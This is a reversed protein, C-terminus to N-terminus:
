PICAMTKRCAIIVIVGTNVIIDKSASLANVAYRSIISVAACKIGEAAKCHYLSTRKIIVLYTACQKVTVEIRTFTRLNVTHPYLVSMQMNGARWGLLDSHIRTDYMGGKFLFLVSNRHAFRCEWKGFLMSIEAHGHKVMRPM